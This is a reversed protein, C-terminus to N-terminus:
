QKIERIADVIQQAGTSTSFRGLLISKRKEIETQTFSHNFAETIQTKFKEPTNAIMCLTELGTQNVMMSNTICFRGRYLANVLKLKIGTPQFSPLVNIHADRVLDTMITESPNEVLKVNPYRAIKEKLSEDPQQGAVILRFPLHQFIEELLYVVAKRNESIQLNAHYLAYDGKGEMCEVQENPHFVPLYHTNRNITKFHKNDAHSISFLLEASRLVKEYSKLKRSESSFFVKRFVSEEHSSLYKYYDHEINHTRVIKIRESLLPDPLFYCTHLGEFLIPHKDMCLQRLLQDHKRSIVIFPLGSFFLKKSFSRHYYYVKKCIKELEKAQNRKYEFCHLYIHVGKEALAKIKYYIDM